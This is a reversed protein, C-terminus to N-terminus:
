EFKVKLYQRTVAKLHDYDGSRAKELYGPVLEGFGAEKLIKQTIGMIAMANGDPGSTDITLEIFTQTESEPPPTYGIGPYNYNGSVVEATEAKRAAEFDPHMKEAAQCVGCIDVPEFISMKSFNMKEGCRQCIRNECM